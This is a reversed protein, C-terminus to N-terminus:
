APLEGTAPLTITFTSGKGIESEVAVGGGLMDCFHKTIALGLGAGEYSRAVGDDAQAFAEFLGAHEDPSMGAGTDTIRFALREGADWGVALEVRGKETFKAANSLLNNLCKGVKTRDSRMTGVSADVNVEFENGNAAMSPAATTEVEAILRALDFDEIAVEMTGTEIDSLDLINGIMVLLNRGAGGIRTLDAIMDPQRADEADEILIDSYGIIHNLPTRLNHSMTLLFNAKVRAAEEAAAKAARLMDEARRRETIDTFVAVIGGDEMRVRRVEVVRDGPIKDEVTEIEPDRYSDLRKGVLEEPDGPGYDGREARIRLVDALPAGVEIVGDPIAYFEQFNKNFVQLNLDKDVMFVGGAMNELTAELIETKEALDRETKKRDTIDTITRLYRGDPLVANRFEHISGDPLEQEIIRLSQDSWNRELWINFKAEIDGELDDYLRREAQRRFVDLLSPKQELFATPLKRLEAYQKNWTSLRQDADYLAIGQDMNELTAELIASKEALDRETEKRQTIDAATGRYGLFVGEEDHTPRGSVSIYRNEGDSDVLKYEFGRFLRRNDIDSRLSRWKAPDSELEEKSALQERTKGIVQDQRLGVSEFYGESLYTYRLDADMEWMWDSSARAFDNFRAESERLERTREEVRQELEENLNRLAEEARKRETIDTYTRVAGGGEMPQHRMEITRGGHMLREIIRPERSRAVELAGAFTDAYDRLFERQEYYFVCIDQLTKLHQRWDADFEYIEAYRSNAAIINLESDFMLIGQDMNELTTDAIAKQRALEQGLRKNEDINQSVALIADRDQYRMLQASVLEWQPEGEANRLRTEFQEVGGGRRLREVLDLRQQPEEYGDLVSRGVPTAGFSYAQIGFPNAFLIEHTDSSTVLIPAPISDLLDQQVEEARKRETIDAQVVVTGGDAMARERILYHKGEKTEFEFSGKREKRFARRRRIFAEVSEGELDIVGREFDLRDLDERRAGPRAEDDSYGYLDKYGTNCHVLRGDDDFLVFAESFSEIADLLRAERAVAGKELDCVRDRLAVVEAALDAKTRHMLESATDTSSTM